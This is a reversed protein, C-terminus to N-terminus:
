RMPRSTRCTSSRSGSTGPAVMDLVAGTLSAPGGPRWSRGPRSEGPWRRGGQWSITSRALDAGGAAAAGGAAIRRALVDSPPTTSPRPRGRRRSVAGRLSSGRGGVRREGARDGQPARRGPRTWATRHLRRCLCGADRRITSEGFARPRAVLAPAFRPWTACPPGRRVGQAARGGQARPRRPDGHRGAARWCGGTTGFHARGGSRSGGGRQRLGAQRGQGAGVEGRRLSAPCRACRPSTTLPLRLRRGVTARALRRPGAGRRPPPQAGGDVRLRSRFWLNRRLFGVANEASSEERQRLCPSGTGPRWATTARFQSFLRSETVEGRVMRGAETANDLVMVRRPAGGAGSYRPWGRACASRRRRSRAGVCQRDNPTHCRRRWCSSTREEGAIVARFNGYDAQHGRRGESSWTARAAARRGRRGGTSCSGASRRSGRLGSTSSGMSSGRPPTASSAPRVSTPRSCRSSGPRM